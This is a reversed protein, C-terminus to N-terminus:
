WSSRLLLPFLSWTGCLSLSFVLICWFGYQRWWLLHLVQQITDVGLLVVFCCTYIAHGTFLDLVKIRWSKAPYWLHHVTYQLWVSTTSIIEMRLGPFSQMVYSSCVLKTATGCNNSCIIRLRSLGSVSSSIISWHSQIWARFDVVSCSKLKVRGMSSPNSRSSIGHLINTLVPVRPTKDVCINQTNSANSLMSSYNALFWRRTLVCFLCMCAYEMDSVSFGVSLQVVRPVAFVQACELGLM